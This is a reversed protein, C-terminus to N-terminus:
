NSEMWNVCGLFRGFKVNNLYFYLLKMMKGKLISGCRNLFLQSKRHKQTQIITITGTNLM